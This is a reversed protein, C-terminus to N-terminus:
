RPAKLGPTGCDRLFKERDFEPEHLALSDAFQLILREYQKQLAWSVPGAEPNAQHNGILTYAVLLSAKM